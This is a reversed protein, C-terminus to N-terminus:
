LALGAGGARFRELSERLIDSLIITEGRYECLAADVIALETDPTHVSAYVNHSRLDGAYRGDPHRFLDMGAIILREPNLAAAAAVMLAGNSPRAPWSRDRILPSIREMTLYDMLKLGRTAAHRLLLAYELRINWIGFICPPVKHLTTPDGVFVLDPRNLFDRSIWRWNVRMLCDHSYTPIRPDESSPGNGLCLISRPHRLRERLTPWDDIRHRTFVQATQRWIKNHGVKDRFTPVRAQDEPGSVPRSPPLSPALAELTRRTADGAAGPTSPPFVRKGSRLIEALAAELQNPVFPVIPCGAATAAAEKDRKTEPTGQEGFVAAGAVTFLAPLEGPLDEVLVDCASQRGRSRRCASWGMAQISRLVAAARARHLPELVLCTDPRIKRLAAFVHLILPEEERCIEAAIVIPSKSDVALFKRVAEPNSQISPRLPDFDLTGTVVLGERPAGQELLRDAADHDQLCLVIGPHGNRVAQLLPAALNEPRHLNVVTVPIGAHLAQSLTRNGLSRGGDLLLLASPNVRNAFRRFSTGANWPAPCALDNPFAHRLYAVTAPSTSTLVLCLHARDRMVDRILNRAADFSVPNDGHIWVSSVCGPLLLATSQALYLLTGAAGVGDAILLSARSRPAVSLFHPFRM